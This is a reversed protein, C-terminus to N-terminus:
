YARHLYSTQGQVFKVVTGLESSVPGGLLDGDLSNLLPFGGRRAVVGLQDAGGAM